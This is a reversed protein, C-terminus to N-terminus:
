GERDDCRRRRQLIYIYRRSFVFAQRHEIQRPILFFPLYPLPITDIRFLRMRQKSLSPSPLRAFSISLM